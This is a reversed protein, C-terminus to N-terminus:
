GERQCFRSLKIDNWAGDCFKWAERNTFQMKVLRAPWCAADPMLCILVWTPYGSM